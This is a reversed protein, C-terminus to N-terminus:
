LQNKKDLKVLYNRFEDEFIMRYDLRTLERQSNPVYVTVFYFKEYELTILRGEDNYKEM